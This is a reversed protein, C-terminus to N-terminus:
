YRAPTGNSMYGYPKPSGQPRGLVSGAGPNGIKIAADPQRQLKQEALVNRYEAQANRKMQMAQNERDRVLAQKEAAIRAMADREQAANARQLDHQQMQGKLVGKYSNKVDDQAMKQQEIMQQTLLKRREDRLRENEMDADRKQMLPGAIENMHKSYIHAQREQNHKQAALYRQQNTYFPDYELEPNKMPSGQM